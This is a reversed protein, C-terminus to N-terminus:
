LTKWITGDARDELIVGIEGLRQRITDATAWDKKARAEARLDVLLRV